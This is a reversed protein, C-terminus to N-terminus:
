GRHGGAVASKLRVCHVRHVCVVCCLVRATACARPWQTGVLGACCGFGLGSCFTWLNDSRCFDALGGNGEAWVFGSSSTSATTFTERAGGGGDRITRKPAEAKEVFM